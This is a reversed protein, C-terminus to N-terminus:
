LLFNNELKKKEGALMLLLDGNKCGAKKIININILFNILQQSQLEMKMINVIFLARDSWSSSNKCFGSVHRITKKYILGKANIGVILEASDFVSFGNGSM